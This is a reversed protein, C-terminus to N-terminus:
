AYILTKLLFIFTCNINPSSSQHSADNPYGNPAFVQSVRQIVYTAANTAFSWLEGARREAWVRWSENMTTLRPQGNAMKFVLHNEQYGSDSWYIKIFHDAVIEIKCNQRAHDSMQAVFSQVFQVLHQCDYCQRPCRDMATTIDNRTVHPYCAVQDVHNARIRQSVRNPAM